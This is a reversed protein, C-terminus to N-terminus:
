NFHANDLFMAIADYRKKQTQNFYVVHIKGIIQMTQVVHIYTHIYTHIM